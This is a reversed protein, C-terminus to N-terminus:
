KKELEDIKQKIELSNPNLELVKKFYKLALDKEGKKELALGISYMANSHSPNIELVRLFDEMAKDTKGENYFLKGREYFVQENNYIAALDNFVALAKENEGKKAYVQALGFDSERYDSKLKIAELFSKEAENMMEAEFYAKGLETLLVPNSPELKVAQEFTKITWLESGQTFAGVNRYVIALIEQNAVSYPRIKVAIKAWSLSNDIAKQILDNDRSDKPKLIEQGIKNLYNKVLRTQYDTRNINLRVAKTLNEEGGARVYFDALWYKATFGALILWAAFLSFIVIDFGKFFKNDETLRFEKSEPWFESEKGVVMLSALILWFLFLLCTNASSFFQLFILIALAAALTFILGSQNGEKNIFVNKNGSYDKKIFIFILYFLISLILLYSLIGLIGTAALLDLFYSGGKDFRFQWFESQNLGVPRYLSFNYSFTGLGGGLMINNKLTSLDVSATNKYDLKAEKSIEQGTLFNAVSGSSFFLFIISIVILCISFVAGRGWYKNESRARLFAFSFFLVGFIIMGWWIFNLDVLVLFFLSFFLLIRTFWATKKGNDKGAENFYFLLLGSIIVTMALSYSALESLSGSALNFVPSYFVNVNGVIKGWLGFISIFFSLLVLSYSFLSLKILSIVSLREKLSATNNIIFYFIVFALLGFWADSFRGYYGFFSSFKDQSFLSSIFVVMLFTLIPIDLPTRKFSVASEYNVKKFLWLIGILPVIIWLLYQKNFDFFELTWPLFFLPLVFILGKILYVISNDL